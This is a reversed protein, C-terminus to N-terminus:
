FKIRYKKMLKNFSKRNATNTQTYIKKLRYKLTYESIHLKQALSEYLVEEHLGKIIEMDIEDCHEFFQELRFFENIDPDDFFLDYSNFVPSYITESSFSFEKYETSRRPIIKCPIFVDMSSIEPHKLLYLYADIAQRGIEYYDLFITSLSPTILESVISNGFGLVYFDDPIRYGGAVANRMLYIAVPDNACIIFNYNGLNGFLEHFCNKVSGNNLYLDKETTSIGFQNCNDLFIKYRKVDSSSNPNFGFLACATRGTMKIYKMANIMSEERNFIVRSVNGRLDFPSNSIIIIKCEYPNLKSLVSEIWSQTTGLIMIIGTDQEIIDNVSHKIHLSVRHKSAAENLGRLTELCWRSKEYEKEACLKVSNYKM